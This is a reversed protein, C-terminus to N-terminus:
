NNKLNASDKHHSKKLLFIEPDPELIIKCNSNLCVTDCGLTQRHKCNRETPPTSNSLLIIVQFFFNLCLFLGSIGKQVPLCKAYICIKM